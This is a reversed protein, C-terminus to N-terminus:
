DGYGHIRRVTTGDIYCASHVASTPTFREGGRGPHDVEGPVKLEVEEKLFIMAEDAAHSLGERPQGLPDTWLDCGIGRAAGTAAGHQRETM